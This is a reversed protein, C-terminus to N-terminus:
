GTPAAPGRRLHGPLMRELVLALGSGALCLAAWVIWTGTATAELLFGGIAPGLAFGAQWSLSSLAMYRGMLQPEALDSVLPAYVAGHLCEGIAFAGMVVALIVTASSDTLTAGVIAVGAWCFAWLVGLAVMLLMRRHGASARTIPLQTLVIVITNVLFIVGIQKESVSAENKAFVPLLEFGSMGAFIFLANLGAVGLFARNRFVRGYRAESSQSRPTRGGLDLDPILSVVITLYLVFTAADILFIVTFSGPRETTAILGGVLAGLGVGLNMVVRQMGFAGPRQEVSTLGAILTSQATWFLSNGVGVLAM